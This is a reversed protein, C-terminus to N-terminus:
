LNNTSAPKYFPCLSWCLRM